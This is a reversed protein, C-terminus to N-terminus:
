EEPVGADPATFRPPEDDKFYRVRTDQMRYWYMYPRPEVEPFLVESAPREDALLAIAEHPAVPREYSDPAVTQDGVAFALRVGPPLGIAAEIGARELADAVAPGEVYLLFGDGDVGIAARHAASPAEGRLVVAAGEPARGVGWRRGVTKAASWLAVPGSTMARAGALYGLAREQGEPAVPAPVARSPDIRVLWTRGEGEGVSARAFAHPWGAHPLGSTDFTM